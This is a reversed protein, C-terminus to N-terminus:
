PNSWDALHPPKHHNRQFKEPLVSARGNVTQLPMAWNARGSSAKRLVLRSIQVDRPMNHNACGSVVGYPTNQDRTIPELLVIQYGLPM